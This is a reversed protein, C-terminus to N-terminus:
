GEIVWAIRRREWGCGGGGGGEFDLIAGRLFGGGGGEAVGKLM